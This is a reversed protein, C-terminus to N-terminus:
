LPLNFFKKANANLVDAAKKKDLSKLKAYVDLTFFVDKPGAKFSKEESLRYVVPTDTEIMTQEIPAFKMAEQLQPSYFLAPTASVLYGSALIDQLVDLPGSYWHFVARTMGSAKVMDFCERWAGRSHIIVPLDFEKALDLQAQLVECQQKKREDSKKVMPYWYDLGIEGIAVAESRHERIFQLTPEIQPTIINGPHIGFALFIKPMKWEKALKLHIKNAALDVGAAIVACVGAEAAERLQAPADDTHDLHAHTDLLTM